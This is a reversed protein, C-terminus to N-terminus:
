GFNLDIGASFLSEQLLSARQKGDSDTVDVTVKFGLLGHADAVAASL